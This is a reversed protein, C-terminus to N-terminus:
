KAIELRCVWAEKSHNYKPNLWLLIRDALSPSIHALVKARALHDNIVKLHEELKGRSFIIVYNLPVVPPGM